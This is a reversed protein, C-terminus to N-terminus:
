PERIRQLASRFEAGIRVVGIGLCARCYALNAADWIPARAEDALCGEV